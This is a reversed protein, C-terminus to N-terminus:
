GQSVSHLLALLLGPTSIRPGMQLYSATRDWVTPIEGEKRGGSETRVEYTYTIGGVEDWATRQEVLLLLWRVIPESALGKRTRM